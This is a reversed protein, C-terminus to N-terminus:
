LFNRIIIQPQIWIILFTSLNLAELFAITVRKNSTFCHIIYGYHWFKSIRHTYYLDTQQFRCSSNKKQYGEFSIWAGLLHLKKGYNGGTVTELTFANFRWNGAKQLVCQLLDDFCLLDILVPRVTESPCLPDPCQGLACHLELLLIRGNRLRVM